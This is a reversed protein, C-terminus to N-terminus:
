ESRQFQHQEGSDTVGSRARPSVLPEPIDLSRRPSRAVREGGYRHNDINVYQVVGIRTSDLGYSTNAHRNWAIITTRLTPRLTFRPRDHHIISRPKRTSPTFADIAEQRTLLHERPALLFCNGLSPTVYSQLPRHSM